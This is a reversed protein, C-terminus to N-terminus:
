YLNALDGSGPHFLIAKVVFLKRLALMYYFGPVWAKKLTLAYGFNEIDKEAFSLKINM